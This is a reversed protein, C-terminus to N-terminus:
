HVFWTLTAVLRCLGFVLTTGLLHIDSVVNLLFCASAIFREVRLYLTNVNSSLHFVPMDTFELFARAFVHMAHLDFVFLAALAVLAFAVSGSASPFFILLLRRVNCAAFRAEGFENLHWFVSPVYSEM